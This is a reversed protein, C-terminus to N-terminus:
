KITANAAGLLRLRGDCSVMFLPCNEKKTGGVEQNGFMVFDPMRGGKGGEAGTAGAKALEVYQKSVQRIQGRAM